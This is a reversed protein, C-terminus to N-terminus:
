AYLDEQMMTQGYSMFQTHAFRGIDFYFLHEGGYAIGTETHIHGEADMREGLGNARLLEVTGWELVGARIRSLVHERSQREIVISEIGAHHLMVALLSGAPGAGVIAVQTSLADGPMPGTHCAGAKRPLTPVM